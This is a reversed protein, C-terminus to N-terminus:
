IGDNLNMNRITFLLILVLGIVLIFLIGTSLIHSRFKLLLQEHEPYKQLIIKWQNKSLIDSFSFDIRREVLQRYLKFTKIRIYLNFFVFIAFIGLVIIIPSSM